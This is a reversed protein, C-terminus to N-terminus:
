LSTNLVWPLQKWGWCPDETVLATSDNYATQHGQLLFKKAQEGDNPICFWLYCVRFVHSQDAIDSLCIQKFLRLIHHGDESSSCNAAQNKTHSCARNHGVVGPASCIDPFTAPVGHHTQCGFTRLGCSQLCAYVFGGTSFLVRANGVLTGDPTFEVM